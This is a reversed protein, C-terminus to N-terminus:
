AGPLIEGTNVTLSAPATYNGADKGSLTYVVTVQKQTGVQPDAYTASAQVFVEDGGVVNTLMGPAVVATLTGDYPKATLVPASITLPRATIAGSALVFPDPDYYNPADAGIVNYSVTLMKGTGVQADAYTGQGVVTADDGPYIGSGGPIGVRSGAWVDTSLSGDYIKSAAIVDLITGMDPDSQVYVVYGTDAAPAAYNAADAGAIQYVIALPREKGAASLDYIAEASVTVTEGAVTGALAGATVQIESDGVSSEVVSLTPKDIKLPAPAIIGKDIQYPVPAAYRGADAGSLTYTVTVTKGAGVSADDYAASATVSVSDTGIVGILAGVTVFASPTGDYSKPASLGTPVAVALQKQGLTIEGSAASVNGSADVAYVAYQGLSLSDTPINASMGAEASVKMGLKAEVAKNLDALAATTTVPVLYLTGKESSVAPVNEGLPLLGTTVGSLTPATRDIVPPTSPTSPLTPEPFFPAPNPSTVPPIPVPPLTPTIPTPPQVPTTPEPPVTPLNALNEKVSVSRYLVVVAEARTLPQRPKFGSDASYGRIIGNAIVAAVSDRAWPDITNSDALGIQPSEAGELKLLRTVIVAAEQRTIPKNAGFTGNSYGTIYGAKLAKAVEPYVWSSSDIDRFSLPMTETFGYSRNILAIFEARSITNNPKFSGDDYGTVYGKDIWDSIQNEAWTGQIDTKSAQEAGWVAPASASLLAAALATSVIKRMHNM